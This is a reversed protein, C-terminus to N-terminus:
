KIFRIVRNNLVHSFFTMIITLIEQLRQTTVNKKGAELSITNGGTKEADGGSKKFNKVMDRKRAKEKM